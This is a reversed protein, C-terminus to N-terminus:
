YCYSDYVEMSEVEVTGHGKSTHESNVTVEKM